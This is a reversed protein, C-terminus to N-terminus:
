AAEKRKQSKITQDIPPNLKSNPYRQKAAANPPIKIAPPNILWGTANSQSVLKKTNTTAPEIFYKKPNSRMQHIAYPIAISRNKGAAIAIKLLFSSFDNRFTTSM